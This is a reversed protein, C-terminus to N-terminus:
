SELWIIEGLEKCNGGRDKGSHPQIVIYPKEIKYESTIDFEPFFEVKSHYCDLTLEENQKFFEEVFM